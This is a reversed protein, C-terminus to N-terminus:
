MLTSLLLGLVLMSSFAIHWRTALFKLRQLGVPDAAAPVPPMALPVALIFKLM